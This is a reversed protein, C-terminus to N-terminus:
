HKPKIKVPIPWAKIGYDYADLIRGTADKRYRRFIVVQDSKKNPAATKTRMIAM